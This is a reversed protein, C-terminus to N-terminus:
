IISSSSYHSYIKVKSVPYVFEKFDLSHKCYEDINYIINTEARIYVPVNLIKHLSFRLSICM